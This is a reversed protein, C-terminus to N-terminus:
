SSKSMKMQSMIAEIEDNNERDSDLQEQDSGIDEEEDSYEPDSQSERAPDQAVAVTRIDGTEGEPIAQQVTTAPDRGGRVVVRESVTPRRTSPHRKGTSAIYARVSENESENGDDLDLVREIREEQGSSDGAGARSSRLGAVGKFHALKAAAGATVVFNDEEEQEQAQV